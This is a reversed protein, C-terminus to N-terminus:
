DSRNSQGCNWLM